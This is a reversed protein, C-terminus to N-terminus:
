RLFDEKCLILGDKEYCSAQGDFQAGCEKCKMCSTHWKRAVDCMYFKDVIRLRCGACLPASAHQELLSSESAKPASCESPPACCSASM